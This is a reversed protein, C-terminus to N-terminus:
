RKPSNESIHTCYVHAGNQYKPENATDRRGKVTDILIDSVAICNAPNTIDKQYM